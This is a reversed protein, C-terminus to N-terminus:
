CRRPRAWCRPGPPWWTPKPVRSSTCTASGPSAPSWGYGPGCDPTPTWTSGTGAPVDLQGHDATVLLAADPPLGDVLRALLADVAAAATRWPASDVGSL